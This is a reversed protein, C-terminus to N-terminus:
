GKLVRRLKDPYDNYPIEMRLIHKNGTLTDEIEIDEVKWILKKIKNISLGTLLELSKSICLSIFVILIHTEVMERKRQFIPRALLDTKAIRFSNEVQWLDHYRRVILRSPLNTLNTYYGKIGDLLKNKDILSQNLSYKQKASFKLFRLKKIPKEPHSIQDIAKAIQKERDFADKKARSKSYDCVLLGNNASEQYYRRRKDTFSAAIRKVTKESQNALRAAVIYNVGAQTLAEINDWSLMAADAVVTLNAITYKQKLRLIVPIFTHGEFKNGEFLDYAIPYGDQNVVLGVVIQPQNYKNDKSFGCKRLEDDTFSEYYLTTVDYFVLSFDFNLHKRAYNIASIEAPPKLLRLKELNKYLENRSYDIRFYDKLLGISDLKSAPEVIRIICLDKLLPSSLSEFGNVRYFQAFFEYAFNHYSKKLLLKKLSVLDTDPNDYQPFLPITKSEAAIFQQALIKLEKLENVTAASGFHKIVITQHYRRTVAQVAIKGSATKTTRIVLM